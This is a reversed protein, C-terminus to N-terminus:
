RMCQNLIMKITYKKSLIMKITYDKLIPVIRRYRYKIEFNTNGLRYLNNKVSQYFGSMSGPCLAEWRCKLSEIMMSFDECDVSKPLGYKYYNEERYSYIDNLIESSASNQEAASRGTEELLKLLKSWNRQM